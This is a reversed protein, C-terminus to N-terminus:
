GLPPRELMLRARGRRKVDAALEGMSQQTVPLGEGRAVSAEAEDVASLIEVRRREREEWLSLAEKVAENKTTFAAARLPRVFLRNKIRPSNYKWLVVTLIVSPTSM